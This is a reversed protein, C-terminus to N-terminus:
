MLSFFFFFFFFGIDTGFIHMCPMRGGRSLFFFLADLNECLAEFSLELCLTSVVGHAPLSRPDIFSHSLVSTQPCATEDSQQNSIFSIISSSYREPSGLPVSRVDLFTLFVGCLEDLLTLGHYCMFIYIYLFIFTHCGRKEITGLSSCQVWCRKKLLSKQTHPWELHTDNLINKFFTSTDDSVLCIPCSKDGQYFFPFLM